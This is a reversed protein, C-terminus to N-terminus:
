RREETRVRADSGLLEAFLTRYHVMAQRLDETTAQRQENRVVIDRAARYNNVVQPHDVSIDAAQQEFTSVPYGRLDMVDKVLRDAEGIASGPDDVFHAQVTNWSNAFRDRDAPDLERIHLKEVRKERERLEAEAKRRDGLDQATRDYEPGFREQLHASNRQRMVLWAIGAIIIIAGIVIILTTTDL